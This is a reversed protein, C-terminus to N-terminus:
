VRHQDTRREAGLALLKYQGARGGQGIGSSAGALFIGGNGVTMQANLTAGSASVVGGIAITLAGVFTCNTLGLVGGNNVWATTVTLMQDSSQVTQTGSAAGGINLTGVSTNVTVNGAYTGAATINAADGPGPVQNPSWNAAVNWNGGLSNTWVITASRAPHGTGLLLLAPLLLVKALSRFPITKM